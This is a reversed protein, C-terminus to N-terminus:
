AACVSELPPLYDKQITEAQRMLYNEPFGHSAALQMFIAKQVAPM